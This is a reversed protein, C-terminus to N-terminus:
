GGDVANARQLWTAAEAHDGRENLTAALNRMAQPNGLEASRRHWHEAEEMRLLRYLLNGLNLAALAHGQEAAEEWIPLAEEPRGLFQAYLMGHNFLAGPDGTAAAAGLLESAEDLRGAHAARTGVLVMSGVSGAEAARRHWHDELREDGLLHHVLGLTYMAVDSGAEALPLLEDVALQPQGQELRRLAAETVPDTSPSGAGPAPGPRAGARVPWPWGLRTAIEPFAEEAVRMAGRLDARLVETSPGAIPELLRWASLLDDAGAEARGAQCRVQGRLLLSNALEWVTVPETDDVLQRRLDVAATAAALAEASAPGQGGAVLDAMAAQVAVVAQNHLAIGLAQRTRWGPRGECLEVVAQQLRAREDPSGARGATESLDNMAIAAEVVISGIEPDDAPTADLVSRFLDVAERGPSLAEKPRGRGAVLMSHRWLALALRRRGARASPWDGRRQLRRYGAVAEASLEEAREGEGPRQWVEIARRYTADVRVFRDEASRRWWAM